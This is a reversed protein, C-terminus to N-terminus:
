HKMYFRNFEQNASLRQKEVRLEAM